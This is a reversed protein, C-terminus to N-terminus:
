CTARLALEEVNTLIWHGHVEIVRLQFGCVDLFVTRQDRGVHLIHSTHAFVELSFGNRVQTELGLGGDRGGLCNISAVVYLRSRVEFFGDDLHFFTTVSHVALPTCWIVADNDAIHFRSQDDQVSAVTERTAICFTVEQFLHKALVQDCFSIDDGAFCIQLSQALMGTVFTQDELKLVVVLDLKNLELVIPVQM